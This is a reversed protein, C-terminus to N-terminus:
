RVRVVSKGLTLRDDMDRLARGFDDLQYTAMGGVSSADPQRWIKLTVRM